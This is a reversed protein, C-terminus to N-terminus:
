MSPPCECMKECDCEFGYPRLPHKLKKMLNKRESRNGLVYIYRHKRYKRRWEM